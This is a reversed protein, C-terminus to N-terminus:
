GLLNEYPILGDAVAVIQNELLTWADKLAKEISNQHYPIKNPGINVDYQESSYALKLVLFLSFLFKYISFM